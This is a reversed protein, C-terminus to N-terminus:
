DVSNELPPKENWRLWFSNIDNFIQILDKFKNPKSIYANVGLEYSEQIDEKLTSSTFMIVPISKLNKDKKLHHLAGLGTMLPMKNDLLILAPIRKTRDKFKGEYHLYELLEKGNSVIDITCDLRSKDIAELALETDLLNDEALVILEKIINM